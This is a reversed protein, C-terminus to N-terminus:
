CARHLSQAGGRIIQSQGQDQELGDDHPRLKERKGLKAAASLM